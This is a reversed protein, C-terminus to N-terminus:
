GIATGVIAEPRGSLPWCIVRIPVQVILAVDDIIRATLWADRAVKCDVQFFLGERTAFEVEDKLITVGTVPDDDVQCGVGLWLKYEIRLPWAFSAQQQITYQGDMWLAITCAELKAVRLAVARGDEGAGYHAIRPIRAVGAPDYTFDIVPQAPLNLKM